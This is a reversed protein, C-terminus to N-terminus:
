TSLSLYKEAREESYGSEMQPNREELLALIAKVDKAEELYTKQQKKDKTTVMLFYSSFGMRGCCLMGTCDEQRMYAWVIESIPLYKTQMFGIYYICKKGVAVKKFKEAQEFDKGLTQLDLETDAIKTFKMHSEGKPRVPKERNYRVALAIALELYLNKM